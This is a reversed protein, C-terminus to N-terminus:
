GITATLVATVNRERTADEMAVLSTSGEGSKEEWGM